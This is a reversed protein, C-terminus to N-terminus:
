EEANIEIQGMDTNGAVEISTNIKRILKSYLPLTAVLLVTIIVLVVHANLLNYASQIFPNANIYKGADPASNVAQLIKGIYIRDCVVITAQMIFFITLMLVNPKKRHPFSNLFCVFSLISFLMTVFGCLGMGTTNIKATTDSIIRLRLSYDLFTIVLVILPITQPKRKLSVIKKRIFEKIGSPTNKSEKNSM